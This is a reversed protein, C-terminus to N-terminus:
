HADSYDESPSHGYHKVYSKFFTTYDKFGVKDFVASPRMGLRISRQALALRKDTVYRHPSVALNEKFLRYLYPESVYNAEAIDSVSDINALNQEVYTLVKTLLKNQTQAEVTKLSDKHISICYVLEKMLSNFLDAFGEEDLKACYYDLRKFIGLILDNNTCDILEFDDLTNIRNGVNLLPDLLINYREYPMAPSDIRLYHYRTPNIIILTNKKLKYTKDEIIYSCDGSVIYIIEYESHMHAEFHNEPNETTVHRFTFRSNDRIFSEKM